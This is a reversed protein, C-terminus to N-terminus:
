FCLKKLWSFRNPKSKLPQILVPPEYFTSRKENIIYEETIKKALCKFLEDVNINDKASVEFFEMGYTEALAKGEEYSVTRDSSDCKNAILIKCARDSATQTIQKMWSEVNQFSERNNCAYALIIGTAGRYYTQTITKFREQGATDWIQMKIKKGASDMMKIKFDLGITTLHRFTFKDEAFRLLLCTKGVTSDGVVLVKALLDYKGESETIRTNRSGKM